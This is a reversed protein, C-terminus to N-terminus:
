ATPPASALREKIKAIVEGFCPLGNDITLLTDVKAWHEPTYGFANDSLVVCAKFRLAEMIAGVRSPAGHRDVYVLLDTEGASIDKAAASTVDFGEAALTDQLGTVAQKIDSDEREVWLCKLREPM